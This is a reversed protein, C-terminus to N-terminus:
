WNLFITTYRWVYKHVCYRDYPFIWRPVLLYWLAKLDKLISTCRNSLFSGKIVMLTLTTKVFPVYWTFHDENMEHRSLHCLSKAMQDWGEGRRWKGKEEAAILKIRKQRTTPINIKEEKRNAAIIKNSSTEECKIEHFIWTLM